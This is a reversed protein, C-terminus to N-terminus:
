RTRRLHIVQLFSSGSFHAARLQVYGARELRAIFRGVHPISLDEVLWVNRPQVGITRPDTRLDLGEVYPQVRFQPWLRVHTGGATLYYETAATISHDPLAVVSDPGAHRSIYLAAGRFDQTLSRGAGVYGPALLLAVAALALVGAVARTTASWGSGVIRCARVALWSVVIALGPVSPTVYRLVFVPHVLSVAALVAAPLLAWSLFIAFLELRRAGPRLAGRAFSPALVAVSAIGILTIAAAYAYTAGWQPHTWAPGLVGSADIVIQTGHARQIWAIQGRQGAAIAAYAVAVVLLTGIPPAISRWDRRFRRREFGMIVLLAAVPVVISFLQLALAALSALCFAGLWRSRPDDLWRVLAAVSLAAALTALAYPRADLAEAVLRPSCATLLAALAGCWIGGVRMALIGAVYVTAGFALVSPVRMWEISSSVGVWVHLLSYYPLYVLDVVRSQRWLGSWSLHASYVSAGEDVWLSKNLWPALALMALVSVSGLIGYSAAPTRRVRPADPEV